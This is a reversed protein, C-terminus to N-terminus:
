FRGSFAEIFGDLRVEGEPGPIPRGPTGMGESVLVDSGALLLNTPTDLGEALLRAAGTALDVDLLRGSFRRFGGHSVESMSGQDNTMPDLFGDCFELVLLRQKGVLVLDTPATLGTLLTETEGTDPDISMIRGAGRVFETGLGGSDGETSGSFLSVLLRDNDHDLTLYGPVPDQGNELEVFDTIVEARGKDDLRLLQDTSSSVAFWVGRANDFVLDNVNAEVETWLEVSDGAVSWLSSPRDFFAVSALVRGGGRALAAMGFVEDRHVLGAINVSPADKLLPHREGQSDYRGDNDLDNLILVAGSTEEGPRGTGATAVLLSGGDGRLMARPNALGRAVTRRALAAPETQVTVATPRRNLSLSCGAALLLAVIAPLTTGLEARKM